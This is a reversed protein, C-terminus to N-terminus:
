GKKVSVFGKAVGRLGDRIARQKDARGVAESSQHALYVDDLEEILEIEWPALRVQARRSFADIDSWGIPSLGSM